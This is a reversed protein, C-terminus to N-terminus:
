IDLLYKYNKENVVFNSLFHVIIQKKIRNFSEEQIHIINPNCNITKLM